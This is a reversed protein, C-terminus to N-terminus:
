FRLGDVLAILDSGNIERFHYFRLGRHPRVVHAWTEMSKAQRIFISAEERLWTDCPSVDIADSLVGKACMNQHHDRPSPDVRDVGEENIAIADSTWPVTVDDAFSFRVPAYDWVSSFSLLPSYLLHPPM